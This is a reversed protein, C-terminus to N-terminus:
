LSTPVGPKGAVLMDQDLAAAVDLSLMQRIWSHGTILDRSRLAIHLTMSIRLM